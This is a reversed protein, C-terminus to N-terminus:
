LFAAAKKRRYREREALRNRKRREDASMGPRRNTQNRRQESWTAWRCNEPSYPGDNDIRDLSMGDPRPGMDELFNEFSELWRDCVTIGRGGYLAWAHSNENLCRYKMSSWANYEPTAREGRYHGHKVNETRGRAAVLDRKLCGCSRTSGRRLDKGLVVIESGCECRCLWRARAKGPRNAVREIVTLRGFVQDSMDIVLPHM